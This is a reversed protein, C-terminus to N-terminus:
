GDLACAGEGDRAVKTTRPQDWGCVSVGGVLAVRGRAVGAYRGLWAHSPAYM